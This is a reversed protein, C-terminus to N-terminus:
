TVMGEPRIGPAAGCRGAPGPNALWRGYIRYSGTRRFGFSEYLRQSVRNDRQTSLGAVRGGMESLERLARALIAAGCGRGQCDPRVALRDVHGFDHHLTVIFYAVVAEGDLALRLRRRPTLDAEGFCEAGYRWMWPFASHEVSMLGPLLADDLPAFTLGAVAPPLPAEARRYVVVEELAEWGRMRYFGLARQEEEPSLIALEAGRACLAELLAEVLAERHGSSLVELVLGIDRRGQWWSGLAYEDAEPIRWSLGPHAVVHERLGEATFRSDWHARLSCAADPTLPVPVLAEGGGRAVDLIRSM